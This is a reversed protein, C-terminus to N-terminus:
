KGGKPKKPQGTLKDVESGALSALDGEYQKIWDSINSWTFLNEIVGPLSLLDSFAHEGFWILWDAAKLVLDAIYIGTEGIWTVANLADSAATEATHAVPLIVDHYITDWWQSVHNLFWSDANAVWNVIPGIVTNNLYNITAQVAALGTEALNKVQQIGYNAAAEAAHVLGLAYDEITKTIASVHNFLSAIGGSIQGVTELALTAVANSAETIVNTLSGIITNFNHELGLAASHVIKLVWKKVEDFSGIAASKADNFWTVPNWWQALIARRLLWFIVLGIFLM